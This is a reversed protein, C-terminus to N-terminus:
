EAITKPPLGDDVPASSEEFEPKEEVPAPKEEVPAPKEEVPAPKQEVAATKEVVVPVAAAPEKKPPSSANNIPSVPPRQPTVVPQAEAGVPKSPVVGTPQAPSPSETPSGLCRRAQRRLRQALGGETQSLEQYIRTVEDCKGARMAGLLQERQEELRLLRALMVDRTDESAVDLTGAPAWELTQEMARRAAELSGSNMMDDAASLLGLVQGVLLVQEVDVQPPQEDVRTGFWIAVGMVAIVIGVGVIALYSDSTRTPTKPKPMERSIDISELDTLNPPTELAAM